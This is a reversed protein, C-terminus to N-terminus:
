KKSLRKHKEKIEQALATLKGCTDYDEDEVYMAICSDIANVWDNRHIEIYCGTDNIEFLTAFVSNSRLAQEIAWATKTKLMQNFQQSEVIHETMLETVNDFIARIPQEKKQTAM